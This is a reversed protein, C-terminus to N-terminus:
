SVWTAQPLYLFSLADARMRVGKYQEPEVPIEGREKEYQELYYEVAVCLQMNISCKDKAALVRIKQM